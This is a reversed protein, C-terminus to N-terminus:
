VNLRRKLSYLDTKFWQLDRQTLENIKDQPLRVAKWLHYKIILTLLQNVAIMDSQDSNFDFKIPKNLHQFLDRQDGILEFLKYIFDQGFAKFLITAMDQDLANHLKRNMEGKVTSKVSGSHFADLGQVIACYNKFRDDFIIEKSHLANFFLRIIMKQKSNFRHWAEFCVPLEALLEELRLLPPIGSYGGVQVNHIMARDYYYYPIPSDNEPLEDVPPDFYILGTIRQRLGFLLQFFWSMQISYVNLEQEDTAEAPLYTLFPEISVVFKKKKGAGFGWSYPNNLTVSSGSLNLLTLEEFDRKITFKTPDKPNVKVDIFIGTEDLKDFVVNVQRFKTLDIDNKEHSVMLGGAQFQQKSYSTWYYSNSTQMTRLAKFNRIGQETSIYGYLDFLERHDKTAVREGSIVTFVIENDPFSLSCPYTEEAVNIAGTYTKAFDFILTM